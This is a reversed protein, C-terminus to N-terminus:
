ILTCVTVTCPGDGLVREFEGAILSRHLIDRLGPLEQATAQKMRAHTFREGLADHAELADRGKPGQPTFREGWVPLSKLESHMMLISCEPCVTVLSRFGCGVCTVTQTKM